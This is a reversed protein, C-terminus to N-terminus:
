EFMAEEGDDHVPDQLGYQWQISTAMSPGPKNDEGEKWFGLFSRM